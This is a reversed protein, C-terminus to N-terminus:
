LPEEEPARADGEPNFIARVDGYISEVAIRGEATMVQRLHTLEVQGGLDVAEGSRRRVLAALARCFIYDRELSTDQFNVVQSLFSYVRIFGDLRDRFEQKRLEDQANFRDVSPSLAAYVKTSMRSGEDALLM